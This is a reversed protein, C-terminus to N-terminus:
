NNYIVVVQEWVRKKENVEETIWKTSIMHVDYM